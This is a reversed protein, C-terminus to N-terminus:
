RSVLTHSRSRDDVAGAEIRGPRSRVRRDAHSLARSL